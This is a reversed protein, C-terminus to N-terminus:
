LLGTASIEALSQSLYAAVKRFSVVDFTEPKDATNQALTHMEELGRYAVRLASRAKNYNDNAKHAIQEAEGARTEFNQRVTNLHQEAADPNRPGAIITESM